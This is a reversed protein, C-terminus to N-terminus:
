RRARADGPTPPVRAAARRRHRGHVVRQRPHRATAAGAGVVRDARSHGVQFRRLRGDGCRAPRVGPSPVWPRDLHQRHPWRRSGGDGPRRCPRPPVGRPPQHRDHRRLRRDGQGMRRAALHARDPRRERGLHRDRRPRVRGPRRLPAGPRSRVRGRRADTGPRVDCGVVVAGAGRLARCWAAGLGRAAGSVVAVKGAVDGAM